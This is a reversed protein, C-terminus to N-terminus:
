ETSLLFKALLQDIKYARRLYATVCDHLMWCTQSLKCFSKLDMNDMFNEDYDM